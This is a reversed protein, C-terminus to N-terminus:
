GGARGVTRAREREGGGGERGRWVRKREGNTLRACRSRSLQEALVAEIRGDAPAVGRAVLAGLPLEATRERGVPAVRLRGGCFRWSGRAAVAM